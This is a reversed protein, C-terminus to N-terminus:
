RANTILAAFKEPDLSAGGSLVGDISPQEIYSAINDASASGGYIVPINPFKTKIAECVVAAEHATQAKWNSVASIAWPPEYAVVDVGAPIPVSENQVCFIVKLGAEKALVIKKFLLEDTEGLNKRRESHGIIVWEVFEKLQKANIEGTYAGEPLASVDQAGLALPLKAEEIGRKVISLLTFPVCLVLTINKIQTTSSTIHSKFSRLWETADTGTKNSKWNGAIFLLKM